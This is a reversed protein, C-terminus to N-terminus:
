YQFQIVLGIIAVVLCLPTFLQQDKKAFPTSRVKRFFGVYKFEGIARLLFIAPIIWGLYKFITEDTTFSILELKLFYFCGFFLLGTAVIFSERKKPNLIRKGELNTPLSENFGWQGGLAWNFHILSLFYFVIVLIVSFIIVIM